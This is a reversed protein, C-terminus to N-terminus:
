GPLALFFTPHFLSAESFTLMSSCPVTGFYAGYTQGAILKLKIKLAGKYM